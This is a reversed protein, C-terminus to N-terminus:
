KKDSDAQFQSGETELMLAALDDISSPPIFWGGEVGPVQRRPWMLVSGSRLGSELLRERRLQSEVLSTMRRASELLSEARLESGYRVPLSVEMSGKRGADNAEPATEKMVSPASSKASPAAPRNPPPKGGKKLIEPGKEM